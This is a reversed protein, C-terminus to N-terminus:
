QPLKATSTNLDTINQYNPPPHYRCGKNTGTHSLSLSDLLRRSIHPSKIQLFDRLEKNTIAEDNNLLFQDTIAKIHADNSKISCGKCVWAGDRRKMSVSICVPCFVGKIVEDKSIKYFNLIDFKGPAHEKLIAKSIKKLEKDTLPTQKIAM